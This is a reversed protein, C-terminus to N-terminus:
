FCLWETCHVHLVANFFSDFCSPFPVTVVCSSVICDIYKLVKDCRLEAMRIICDGVVSTFNYLHWIHQGPAM